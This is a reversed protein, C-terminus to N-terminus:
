NAQPVAKPKPFLMGWLMNILLLGIGFLAAIAVIDTIGALSNRKIFIGLFAWVLVLTYAYDKRDAFVKSGVMTAIFIMIVAWITGPINFGNWGWDVLLATINAITAVTIWGLYISFPVHVMWKKKTTVSRLGIEIRSYIYILSILLSIMVLVSWFILQYHWLFIWSINAVCSYIFFFSIRALFHHNKVNSFNTSTFQYVVFIILFIYIVGWISFTLGAPVFYNPYLDSLEGTNYGNIPLANALYNVFITAALGLTNLIALLRYINM